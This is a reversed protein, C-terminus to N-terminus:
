QRAEIDRVMRPLPSRELQHFLIHTDTIGVVIISPTMTTGATALVERSNDHEGPKSVFPAARFHSGARRIRAADKALIVTVEFTDHLVYWPLRWLAIVQRFSPTFGVNMQRWTIFVMFVTLATFVLCLWLEHVSFSSAVFLLWCGVGAAIWLLVVAISNSRNRM